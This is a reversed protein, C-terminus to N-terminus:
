PGGRTLVQQQDGSSRHRHHAAALAVSRYAIEIAIVGAGGLVAAVAVRLPTPHLLFIDTAFVPVVVIVAVIGAMAAVLLLKWGALPRALVLLVWLSCILVILTAVTRGADVGGSPDITRIVEYGVYADAGIVVGVPISFRLVRHLFGPV